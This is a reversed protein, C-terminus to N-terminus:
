QKGRRGELTEVLAAPLNTVMARDLRAIFDMIVDGPVFMDPLAARLDHSQEWLHVFGSWLSEVMQQLTFTNLTALTEKMSAKRKADQSTDYKKRKPM